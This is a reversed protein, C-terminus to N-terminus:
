VSQQIHRSHASVTTYPIGFFRKAIIGTVEVCNFDHGRMKGLIRRFSNKINKAGLAGLFMVKVEAGMFFFHWGAAHAERDFAFGDAARVVSWSGFYPESELGFLQSEKMLITGVRIEQPMSSEPAVM